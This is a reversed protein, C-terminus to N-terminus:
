EKIHNVFTILEVIHGNTVKLQSMTSGNKIKEAICNIKTVITEFNNM